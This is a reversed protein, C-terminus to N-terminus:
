EQIFLKENIVTSIFYSWRRSHYSLFFFFGFGVFRCLYMHLPFQFSEIVHLLVISTEHLLPFDCNRLTKQLSQDAKRHHGCYLTCASSCLNSRRLLYSLTQTMEQFTFRSSYPAIQYKLISASTGPVEQVLLSKLIQFALYIEHKNQKWLLKNSVVRTKNCLMWILLSLM